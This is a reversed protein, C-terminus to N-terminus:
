LEAVALKQAAADEHYARIEGTYIDDWWGSQPLIEVQWSTASATSGLALRIAVTASANYLEVRKRFANAALVQTGPGIMGPLIDMPSSGSPGVGSSSAKPGKRVEVYLGDQTTGLIPASVGSSGGDLKVKQHHEGAVVDSAVVQGGAGPNLTVGM